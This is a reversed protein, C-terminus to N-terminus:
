ILPMPEFVLVGDTPTYTSPMGKKSRETSSMSKNPMLLTSTNRPGCPVSKPRFEVAPSM